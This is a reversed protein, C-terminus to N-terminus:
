VADFLAEEGLQLRVIDRYIENKRLLEDHTGSAAIRGHDLVFIRDAYRISSIRQAIVIVTRGRMRKDLSVRLRSETEMDLASGSDDLILIDPEKLLTRAISLRQRQGGSFNKGRQEVPSRYKHPLLRVFGAQADDLAKELAEGDSRSGGFRLNDAITGSFLVSEQMVVGVKSRLTELDTERVDVGGVLVAGQTADYLRPVLGALSSKGSGTAGIIGVTQGPEVRLCIDQLAEKKDAGYRLSVHRFEVSGDGPRKPADPQRISPKADLVERVRQASAQAQSINVVLNVGFLLSNTIQVLYNVFAIIKGVELGGGIVWGGGFWLVCVIALNMMLTVVPLLAFTIGQARISEGTLEANAKSFRETQGDELGMSKVVRIGLLNERMVTNVRDLCRQALTYLPTSKRLVLTIGVLIVPLIAIFVVSLGPILLVSMIIGGICFVPSRVIIRLMLLVMNQIQAVDNTLRTILSSTQFRDIDEFSLRQIQHFMGERLRECMKVAAVSSLATCGAGGFFGLLAFLAMKGGTALVFSFDRGAVGKDVIESVLTPQQLDMWVEVFMLLPALLACVLTFGRLYRKMLDIM